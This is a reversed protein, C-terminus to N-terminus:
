ATLSQETSRHLFGWRNEVEVYEQLYIKTVKPNIRAAKKRAEELTKAFCSNIAPGDGDFLLERPTTVVYQTTLDGTLTIKKGM